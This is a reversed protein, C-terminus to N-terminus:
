QRRSTVQYQDAVLRTKNAADQEMFQRCREISFVKWGDNGLEELKAQLSTADVTATNYEWKSPPKKTDPYSLAERGILFSMALLAMGLLGVVPLGFRRRESM